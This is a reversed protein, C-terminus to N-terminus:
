SGGSPASRPVSVSSTRAAALTAEDPRGVVARRRVAARYEGFTIEVVPLRVGIEPPLPETESEFVPLQFMRGLAKAAHPHDRRYRELEARAADLPLVHALAPVGRLTAFWIRVSPSAQINRFWQSDSGFGSVVVIRGPARSAVELVVYRDLGTSRGRHEVLVLRPGIIWGLGVRFLPIPARYLRRHVRAAM